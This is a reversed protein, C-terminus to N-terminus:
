CRYHTRNVAFKGFADMKDAYGKMQIDCEARVYNDVNVKLVDQAHTSAIAFISLLAILFASSTQLLRSKIKM